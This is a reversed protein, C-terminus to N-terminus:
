RYSYSGNFGHRTIGGNPNTGMKTNYLGHYGDEQAISNLFKAYQENTVEYQGMEFTESVYGLGTNNYGPINDDDPNKPDGVLVFRMDTMENPDDGRAVEMGDSIGDNDTDQIRVNTRWQKIEQRDGLGDSDTDRKTPDSGFFHVEEGDPVGDSDTDAKHPDTNFQFELLNILDDEDPDADPDAM